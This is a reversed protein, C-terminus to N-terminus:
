DPEGATHDGACMNFQQKSMIVQNVKRNHKSTLKEVRNQDITCPAQPAQPDHDHDPDHTLIMLLEILAKILVEILSNAVIAAIFDLGPM